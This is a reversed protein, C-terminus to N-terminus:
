IRLNHLYSDAWPSGLGMPNIAQWKKAPSYIIWKQPYSSIRSWGQNKFDELNDSLRMPNIDIWQEFFIIALSQHYNPTM